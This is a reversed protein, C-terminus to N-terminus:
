AKREVILVVNEFNTVVLPHHDYYVSAADYLVVDGVKLGTVIADKGISVITGKAMAVMQSADMPVIIGDMLCEHNREFKRIVVKTGCAVLSKEYEYNIGM